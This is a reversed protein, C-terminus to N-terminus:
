TVRISRQYWLSRLKRYRAVVPTPILAAIGRHLGLQLAMKGKRTLPVYYTPFLVPKFGNRRKFELLTSNPDLYLFNGYVLYPKGDQECLEVAKSILANNPRKDFHKQASFIQMIAAVPGVYTIKMSGILEDGVYAGIFRSRDLYNDLEHKIAHFDKNYHWFAKGQRVPTEAYIRCLATVFEDGFTVPKVDVGLKKSRNVSKRVSYETDNKWWAEYTSVPLVALNDWEVHFNYKPTVDPLRQAFRFIDARLGSAQLSSVFRVSDTITDGEILDEDRVIATRLWKGVTVVNRGDIEVSPVYTSKGKVRIESQAATLNGPQMQDCTATAPKLTEGISSM